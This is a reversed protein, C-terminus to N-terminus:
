QPRAVKEAKAKARARAHAPLGEDREVHRVRVKPKAELEEVFAKEVELWLAINFKEEVTLYAAVQKRWARENCLTHSCCGETHYGSGYFQSGCPYCGLPCCLHVIGLESGTRNAAEQWEGGFPM